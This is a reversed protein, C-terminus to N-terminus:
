TAKGGTQFPYRLNQLQERVGDPTIPKLMFGSAGTSWADLSYESYATLYVVNTRPNIKLLERCLELGSTNRLEIDLFALAIRNTKSFEIAERADTFGTITANPMVEQLIPLGGALIIKRDDVMIVNPCDDSQAAAMLLINVDVGFVEALRSIMVVDPLRSGSEWRSIAARTVYMREALELQSLRKEYRLKKLMDSFNRNM